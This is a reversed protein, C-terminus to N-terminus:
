GHKEGHVVCPEELVTVIEKSIVQNWIEMFAKVIVDHHCPSNLELFCQLLERLDDKTYLQKEMIMQIMSHRFDQYPDNSDKVVAISDIIKPCPSLMVKSPRSLDPESESNLTTSSSITDINNFSFSTSTLDDNEMASVAVNRDHSSSSSSPKLIQPASTKSKPKPEYVDSLNQRGCGCGANATLLTKLLNKKNSSM